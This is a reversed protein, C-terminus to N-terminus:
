KLSIIVKGRMEEERKKRKAKERNVKTIIKILRQKFTPSERKSHKNQNERREIELMSGLLSNQHHFLSYHLEQACIAPNIQYVPMNEKDFFDSFMMWDIPRIQEPSLGIFKQLFFQMASLSIIYGATGWHESDLLLFSRHQYDPINSPKVNVPMFITELRIIFTSGIPMRESIWNDVTLFRDANNGLLIDDEFVAIYSLKEKIAQEWLIIHSMFCAKEVDSLLSQYKLAPILRNIANDLTKSPKVADFFQFLINQANFTQQIHERRINSDPLSVVYIKM